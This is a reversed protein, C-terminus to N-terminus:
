VKIEAMKKMVLFGVFEFVFAMFVLIRGLPNDTLRTIYDPNFVYNIVVFLLPLLGIIIASMKAEASFTKIQRQFHFRKKITDSLGELIQSLSGGTERQIIFATTFIKVDALSPYRGEFNRLAKDFPIGMRIEEYIIRIETSFPVPIADAVDKLSADVSQGVRLARVIMGLADPMQLILQQEIKRKKVYLFVIPLGLCLAFVGAAAMPNKLIAFALFSLVIGAGATGMIVSEPSFSIGATILLYNLSALSLPRDPAGKKRATAPDLRVKGTRNRGSSADTGFATKLFRQRRQTEVKEKFFFVLFSVLFIVSFVSLYIITEMTM